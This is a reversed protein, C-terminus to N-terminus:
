CDALLPHQSLFLPVLNILDVACRVNLRAALGAARAYNRIPIRGHECKSVYLTTRRSLFMVTSRNVTTLRLSYLGRFEYCSYRSQAGLAM